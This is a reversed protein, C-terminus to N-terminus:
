DSSAPPHTAAMELMPQVSLFYDIYRDSGSINFCASPFRHPSSESAMRSNDPWGLFSQGMAKCFWPSAAQNRPMLILTRSRYRELPRRYGMRRSM